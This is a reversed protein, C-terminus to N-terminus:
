LEEIIYMRTGNDGIVRIGPQIGNGMFQPELAIGCTSLISGSVIIDTEENEEKFSLRGIPFAFLQDNSNRIHEALSSFLRLSSGTHISAFTFGIRYGKM